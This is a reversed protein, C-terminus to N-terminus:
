NAASWWGDSSIRLGTAAPGAYRALASLCSLRRGATVSSLGAAKALLRRLEITTVGKEASGSVVRGIWEFVALRGIAARLLVSQKAEEFRCYQRGAPTLVPSGKGPELYGLLEGLERYYQGQRRTMKLRKSIADITAEPTAALCIVRDVRTPSNAQPVLGVLKGKLAAM